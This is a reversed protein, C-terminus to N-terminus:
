LKRHISNPLEYIGYKRLTTRCSYLTLGTVYCGCWRLAWKRVSILRGLNTKLIKTYMQLTSLLIKSTIVCHLVYTDVFDINVGLDYALTDMAALERRSIKKDTLLTDDLDFAILKVNLKTEPLKM